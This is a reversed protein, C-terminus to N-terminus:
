GSLANAVVISEENAYHIDFETRIVDAVYLVAHYRGYPEAFLLEDFTFELYDNSTSSPLYALIEVPTGIRRITLEASTMAEVNNVIRVTIKPRSRSVKIGGLTMRM